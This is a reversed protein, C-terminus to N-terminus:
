RGRGRGERALLAAVTNRVDSPPAGVVRSFLPRERFSEYCAELLRRDECLGYTEVEKATRGFDQTQRAAGRQLLAGALKLDRGFESALRLIEDESHGRLRLYGAADVVDDARTGAPLLAKNTAERVAKSFETPVPLGQSQLLEKTLLLNRLHEGRAQEEVLLAQRYALAAAGEDPLSAEQEVAEGFFRAPHEPDSAALERQALRNAAVEVIRPDGGLYRVVVDAAGKRWQAGARGPLLMLITAAGRADTAPIPGRSGSGGFYLQTSAAGLEPFRDCLRKYANQANSSSLGTVARILDYVALKGDKLRTGQLAAQTLNRLELTTATTAM